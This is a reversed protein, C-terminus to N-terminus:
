NLSKLITSLSKKLRESAELCKNAAAVAEAYTSEPAYEMLDSIQCDFIRCLINIHEIPITKASSNEYSSLTTPRIHSLIQLEKQTMGANHRLTKINFKVMIVGGQSIHVFFWVSIQNCVDRFEISMDSFEHYLLVM